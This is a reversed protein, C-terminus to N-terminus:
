DPTIFHWKKGYKEFLLQSVSNAEMSTTNCVRYVNWKCDKGTIGDTHGSSVIHLLKKQNTIQAIAQAVASNLDGIIFSVGDGEILKSAKQVGTGVDNASDVVLLQIPRGLIGGKANIEDVALKAGAVENQAVAAYAGTLPDVLGIKVPEDGLARVVFPSAVQVLGALAVGKILTRRDLTRSAKHM